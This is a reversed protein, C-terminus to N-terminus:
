LHYICINKWQINKIKLLLMTQCNKNKDAYTKINKSAKLVDSQSIKKAKTDGNSSEAASVSTISIGIVFIALLVFIIIKKKYKVM